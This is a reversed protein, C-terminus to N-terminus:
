LDDYTANAPLGISVIAPAVTDKTGSATVASGENGASDTLTVSVTLPGDALSSLDISDIVQPDATINGNGGIAGGNSSSITYRYRSNSEGGSIQISAAGKNADNVPNTLLSVSYGAPPLRDSEATASKVQGTGGAPTSISVELRLKGPPLSSVSVTVTHSNSTITDTGSVAGPGGESTITYDLRANQPAKEVMFSVADVNATTVPNTLFTATYTQIKIGSADPATFGLNSAANGNLDQLSGGNLDLPPLLAIGNADFDRPQIAYSFTLSSTGSGGAYTAYRTVGGVDLAIRPTGTVTVPKSTTLTFDLTAANAPGPLLCLAALLALARRLLSPKSIM